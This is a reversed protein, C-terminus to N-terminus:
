RGFIKVTRVVSRVGDSFSVVFLRAGSRIGIQQFTENGQVFAIPPDEPGLSVRIAPFARADWAFLVHGEDTTIAEATPVDHPVAVREATIGNATLTLRVLADTLQQSLPVDLRFPGSASFGFAFLSRGDAAYGTLVAPGPEPRAFQAPAVRVNFAPDLEVTAGEIRGSVELAACTRATTALTEFPTAPCAAHSPSVSVLRPEAALAAFLLAVPLM